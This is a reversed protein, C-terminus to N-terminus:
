RTTSSHRTRPHSHKRAPAPPPDPPLLPLGSLALLLNNSAKFVNVHNYTPGDTFAAFLATHTSHNLAIYTTFGAGGGTKEVIESPGALIHMWGLGIGTPPGAHDLGSQALLNAPFLVVAQAAPDQPIPNLRLLYKLFLTIDAATSYLGSSGATNQTDTCPGEDHATQLLRACHGPNPTYGTEHMGLPATTRQYLLTALPTHTSSALADGLLDFGVNSYLAATGPTSLLRQAPLWRWRQSYSPFAFHPTGHPTGRVERPLGSTHTALDELTIAQGQSTPVRLHLPAFQQLPDSFSVNNAAVLKAFLDTTFIKTLSCLRFVSTETPLQRSGPATEGYGQFFTQATGDPNARVLVLVMGTSASSAFLEAGLTSAQTLPLPQTPLPPTQAPAALAALLILSPLLNFRV